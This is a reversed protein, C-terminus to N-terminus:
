AVYVLSETGMVAYATASTAVTFELHVLIGATTLTNLARRNTRNGREDLLLDFVLVGPPPLTGHKEIFDAQLETPTGDFAFLGSGYQLQVRTLAALQIPSGAGAAIVNSAPDFMRIYVMLLQGTDLPLQLDRVSVGNLQFRTTRWRYQWPYVPPMLRPDGAYVAKRRLTSTVTSVTTGTGASVNTVSGDLTNGGAAIGLPNLTITPTIVRTSGAMYQPSVIAAHPIGTTPNGDITLDFYADFSISAPLRLLQQWSTSAVAWQAPVILNAQANGNAGGFEYGNGVALGANAGAPNAYNNSRAFTSRWPRILNFIYLDIGSELDVSNYQNQIPLKVPGLINWPAYPSPTITSTGATFTQTVSLELVWDIVVDTQRFQLIGNIPVQAGSNAVTALNRTTEFQDTWQTGGGIGPVDFFAGPGAQQPPTATATM